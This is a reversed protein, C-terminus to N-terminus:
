ISFERITDANGDAIWFTEGNPSWTIGFGRSVSFNKTASETFGNDLDYNTNLDYQHVTGTDPDIGYFKSGDNNFALGYHLASQGTIIKSSVSALSFPTSLSLEVIDGDQGIYLRTGDDSFMSGLVNFNTSISSEQTLNDLTFPSSTDFAALIRGSQGGEIFKNGDDGFTITDPAGDLSNKQRVTTRTGFDFPTSCDYERIIDDLDFTVFAKTGDPKWEIEAPRTNSTGYTDVLTLQNIDFANPAIARFVTQGNVTVEGITNGNLTIDGINQGNLDIPM